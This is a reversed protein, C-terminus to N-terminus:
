HHERGELRGLIKELARQMEEQDEETLDRLRTAVRHVRTTQYDALAKQGLPTVTVDIKRKDQTNIRCAILQRLPAELSRIIRSMQAPLVGLLRQIDGVIMTGRECLIALTLYELEKLDGIRRRGPQSALSIRAGLECLQQAVEETRVATTTAIM